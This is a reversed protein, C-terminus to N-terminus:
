VSSIGISVSCMGPAGAVDVVGWVQVEQPSIRTGAVPSGSVSGAGSGCSLLPPKKPAITSKKLEMTAKKSFKKADRKPM